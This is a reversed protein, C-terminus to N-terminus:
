ESWCCLEASLKAELRGSPAFKKERFLISLDKETIEYNAGAFRLSQNLISYFFFVYYCQSFRRM